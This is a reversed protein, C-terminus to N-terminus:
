AGPASTAGSEEFQLNRTAFMVAGLLVFLLVTGTLLSLDELQLVLYLYGYIGGLLAGMGSAPKLGGLVASAYAVILGTAALAAALYAIGFGLLEALALLALFFLCLAAGALLYNLLHLSRGGLMEALFFGAFVTVLFLIGYKISREVARYDTVGPLLHVGFSEAGLQERMSTDADAAGIWFRALTRGLPSVEWAAEFGEETVERSMPLVAGMFSPATATSRLSVRMTEAVPMFELAGSGNLRVAFSFEWAQEEAAVPVDAALAAPWSELGQSGSFEPAGGQWHLPEVVDVGRLHSTGFVLRANEWDLYAEEFGATAIRDFRGRFQLSATFVQAKFLGRQLVRPELEGTVELESPGLRILHNPSRRGDVSYPVLLVPGLVEQSGGWAATVEAVVAANRQAREERKADILWLPLQLLVVAGVMFLLKYTLRRRAASMPAVPLPPPTANM